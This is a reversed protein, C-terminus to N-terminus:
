LTLIRCKLGQSTIKNYIDEQESESTCEIVIEYIKMIDNSLDIQENKGHILDFDNEDFGWDLLDPLDFDKSLIDFDWEGAINKNLRINLEKVEKKNLLREPQYCDCETIEKDILDLYRAHGGIITNDLNVVLPEALGYKEISKALDKRSEKTIKRPNSGFPKLDSIKKRVLQWEM